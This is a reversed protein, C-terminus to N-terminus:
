SRRTCPRCSSATSCRCCCRADAGRHGGRERLHGINSKVSGIACFQKTARTAARVGADPGRDRDSRGAGHRHRAGRHLQGHRADVGAKSWRRARDARAQAQPNPVTYGNTKGGHNLASGRIVGYIHDGDAIAQSLPKLLVAGVGEGPVFGDGGEGFSQCRGTARCCRRQACLELYKNPHLYLNM